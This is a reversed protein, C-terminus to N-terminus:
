SWRAHARPRSGAEDSSVELHDIVDNMYVKSLPSFYGTVAGPATGSMVAAATAANAAVTPNSAPTPTATRTCSDERHSPTSGPTRPRGHEGPGPPWEGGEPIAAAAVDFDNVVGAGSGPISFDPVPPVHMGGLGGATSAGAPAVGPIAFGPVAANGGHLGHINPIGQPGAALHPSIGQSPGTPAAGSGGGFGALHSISATTATSAQRGRRPQTLAGAAASRATDQDRIIYCAYLLPTLQRRFRTIQAQVIFLRRVFELQGTLTFSLCSAGSSFRPGSVRGQPDRGRVGACARYEPRRSTDSSEWVLLECVDLLAQALMSVDGSRRLLSHDDEVREYIPELAESMDNECMTIILGDRMMFASIIGKRIPVMYSASLQDVVLRHTTSDDFEPPPGLEFAQKYAM